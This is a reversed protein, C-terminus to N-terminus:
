EVQKGAGLTPHLKAVSEAAQRVATFLGATQLNDKSLNSYGPLMVAPTTINGDEDKTAGVLETANEAIQVRIQGALKKDTEAKENAYINFVMTITKDNDDVAFFKLKALADTLDVGIDTSYSPLIFM